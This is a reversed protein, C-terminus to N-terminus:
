TDRHSNLGRFPEIHGASKMSESAFDKEISKHEALHLLATVDSM